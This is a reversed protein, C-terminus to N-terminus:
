IFAVSQIGVVDFRKRCRVNKCGMPDDRRVMYSQAKAFRARDRDDAGRPLQAKKRGYLAMRGFRASREVGVSAIGKEALRLTYLGTNAGVDVASRVGVAEVVAEIAAWRSEIGDLRRGARLGAWPLPQNEKALAAAVARAQIGWAPNRPDLAALACAARLRRVSEATADQVVRWCAEASVIRQHRRLEDRIVELEARGRSPPGAGRTM